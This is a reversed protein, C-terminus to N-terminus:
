KMLPFPIPILPWYSGGTGIQGASACAMRVFGGAESRVCPRLLESVTAPTDQLFVFGFPNLTNNLLMWPSSGSSHALAPAQPQRNSDSPATITTNIAVESVRPGPRNSDFVLVGAGDFCQLGFGGGPALSKAVGFVKYEVTAAQSRLYDDGPNAVNSGFVGLRATSLDLATLGVYKTSSQFRAFVLPPAGVAAPFSIDTGGAAVSVTGEGLLSYNQNESDILVDGFSNFIQIGFSM